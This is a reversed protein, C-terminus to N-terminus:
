MSLTHNLFNTLIILSDSVPLLPHPELHYSYHTFLHVYTNYFMYTNGPDRATAHVMYGRQLLTNVLWSGIYGTAGTVCYTPTPDAGGQLMPKDEEVQLSRELDEMKRERDAVEKNKELNTVCDFCCYM